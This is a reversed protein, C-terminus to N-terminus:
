LPEFIGIIAFKRLERPPEVSLMAAENRLGSNSFCREPM